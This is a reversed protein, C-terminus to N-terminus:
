GAHSELVLPLGDGGVFPMLLRRYQIEIPSASQRFVLARVDDVLPEGLAIARDYADACWKGYEADPADRLDAGLLRQREEATYLRLASGIHEWRWHPRGDGSAARIVAVSSRGTTDAAAFRVAAERDGGGIWSRAEQLMTILYRQKDRFLVSAPQRVAVFRRATEAELGRVLVDIRTSAASASSQVEESWEQGVRIALIIEVKTATALVQFLADLARPQAIRPALRVHIQGPAHRVEIWGLCRVAFGAVDFDGAAYGLGERLETSNAQWLRGDEDFVVHLRSALQVSFSSRPAAGRAEGHVAARIADITRGRFLPGGQVIDKSM